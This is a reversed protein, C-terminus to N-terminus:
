ENPNEMEADIASLEEDTLVASLKTKMEHTIRLRRIVQHLATRDLGCAESLRTIYASEDVRLAAQRFLFVLRKRRKDASDRAPADVWEPFKM